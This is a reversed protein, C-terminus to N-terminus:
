SSSNRGIVTEHSPSLLLLHEEGDCSVLALKRRHDLPTIEIVKIRREENKTATTGGLNLGSRKLAWAGLAILALVFGLAGLARLLEIIDM